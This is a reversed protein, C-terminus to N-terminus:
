RGQISDSFENCQRCSGAMIVHQLCIYGPWVTVGQKRLDAKLMIKRELSRDTLSRDVSSLFVGDHAQTSAVSASLGEISDELARKTERFGQM